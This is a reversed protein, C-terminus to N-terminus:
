ENGKKSYRIALEIYQKVCSHPNAKYWVGNHSWLLGINDFLKLILGLTKVDTWEVGYLKLKFGFQELNFDDIHQWDKPLTARLRDEYLAYWDKDFVTMKLTLDDQM